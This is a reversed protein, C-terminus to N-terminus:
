SKFLKYEKLRRNEIGPFKDEIYTTKISDAASKYDGVKLKQIFDSTRMNGIGMNYTMSILADYQGQTLKIHIGQDDWQKFIRRVDEAVNNVDEILIKYADAHSIIDGVKYKSTKIPEAHGYGITIMGDGLSYAREIFKEENKIFDWGSQSLKISDIDKYGTDKQAVLESKLIEKDSQPINQSDIFQNIKAVSYISILSAILINAYKRKNSNSSKFKDILERINLGEVILYNDFTDLKKEFLLYNEM